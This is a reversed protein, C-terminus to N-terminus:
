GPAGFRGGTEALRALLPPIEPRRGDEEGLAALRAVLRAPGVSDAFHLLGGRAAPFGLGHVSVLDLDAARRAAGSELLRAAKAIQALLIRERMEAACWDRTAIGAFYAEERILDEILPDVVAGGGGPYRYWGVGAAKGLRGEAVMRPQIPQQAAGARARAAQTRALGSLDQAELPGTAFGFAVMAEDLEWPLAGRILMEDAAALTALMLAEGLPAGGAPVPIRGLRAALAYAAALAEPASGPAPGIEALRTAHAPPEFELGVVRGPDPLGAARAALEPGFAAIAFIAGPPLEAAFPSVGGEIEGPDLLMGADSLAAPDSSVRWAAGDADAGLHGLLRRAMDFARTADDRDPDFLLVAHGASVLAGVLSVAAPGSGAVAVRSLAPKGGAAIAPEARAAAEARALHAKAADRAAADPREGGIRDSAGTM